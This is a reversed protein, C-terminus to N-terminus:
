IWGCPPVPAGHVGCVDFIGAAYRGVAVVADGPGVQQRHPHAVPHGDVDFGVVSRGAYVRGM